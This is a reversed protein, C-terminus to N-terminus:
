SHPTWKYGHEERLNVYFKNCNFFMKVVMKIRENYINKELRTLLKLMDNRMINTQQRTSTFCNKQVLVKLLREKEKQAITKNTFQELNIHRSLEFLPLTITGKRLDAFQDQYDKEIGGVYDKSLTFDGVDNIMQGGTGFITGISRLTQITDRNAGAVIAGMVFSAEYFRGSLLSCREKYLELYEDNTLCNIQKILNLSHLELAQGQQIALNSESIEKLLQQKTSEPLATSQLTRSALERFFHSAIHCNKKDQDTVVSKKDDLHWNQFYSAINYFEGAAIVELLQLYHKKGHCLHYITEVIYDRLRGGNVSRERRASYLKQMFIVMQNPLQASLEYFYRDMIQSVKRTIHIKRKEYTNRSPM